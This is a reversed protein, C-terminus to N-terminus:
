GDAGPNKRTVLHPILAGIALDNHIYCTGKTEPFFLTIIIFDVANLCIFVLYYKWSINTIAITSVKDHM